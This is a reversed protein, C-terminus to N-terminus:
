AAAKASRFYRWALLLGMALVILPGFWLLWTARKLPPTMLIYDGYRSVLYSKIAADSDGAKIRSRILRRMDAAVQAPSDAISESQCVVCRIEHFLTQARAEQAPDALPTDVTLAFAQSVAAACLVALILLSNRM